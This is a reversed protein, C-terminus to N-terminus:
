YLFKDSFKEASIPIWQIPVQVILNDIEQQM